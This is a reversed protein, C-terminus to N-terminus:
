GILRCKKGTRCFAFLIVISTYFFDVNDVRFVVPNKKFNCKYMAKDITLLNVLFSMSHSLGMLGVITYFGSAALHLAM